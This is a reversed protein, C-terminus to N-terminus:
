LPPSKQGGAQIHPLLVGFTLKKEMSMMSPTLLFINKHQLAIASRHQLDLFGLPLEMGISFTRRFVWLRFICFLKPNKHLFIRRYM